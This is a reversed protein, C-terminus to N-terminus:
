GGCDSVGSRWGILWTNSPARNITMKAVDPAAPPRDRARGSGLTAAVYSSGVRGPDRRGSSDIAASFNHNAAFPQATPPGHTFPVAARMDASPRTTM